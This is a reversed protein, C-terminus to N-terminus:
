SCAAEGAGEPAERRRPSALPLGRPAGAARSQRVCRAALWAGIRPNARPSVPSREQTLTFTASELLGEPAPPLGPDWNPGPGDTPEDGETRPQERLLAYYADLSRHYRDISGRYRRIGFIELGNWYAYSPLLKLRDRAVAGIM